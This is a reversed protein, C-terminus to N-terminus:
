NVVLPLFLQQSGSVQEASRASPMVSAITLVDSELNLNVSLTSNLAAQVDLLRGLAGQYLPNQTDIAQGSSNLLQEISTASATPYKQRLLAAAGSVFPTAM